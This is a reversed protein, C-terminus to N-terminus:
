SCKSYGCDLCVFCGEETAVFGGCNPCRPRSREEESPCDPVPAEKASPFVEHLYKQYEQLVRALADPCSTVEKGQALCVPCRIGKLQKTIVDHPIKSRLIVSVLRSIAETNARCVGGKGTALFTELPNGEGDVNLTVYLTGCAVDFETTFGRTTKPRPTPGLGRNRYTCNACDPGASSVGGRPGDASGKDASGGTTHAQASDGRYLVQQGKCGDRFVTVGKCGTKYALLYVDKIDEKTASSPLNITKSVGNSIYQQWCAQVMVHERPTVDFADVFYEPKPKGPHDKMWEEYLPDLVELYKEIGRDLYMRRHVLAFVPEIGSSTDCLLSCTGTPAITNWTCNRLGTKLIEEPTIGNQEMFRQLVGSYKLVAHDGEQFAPYPGEVLALAMSAQISADRLASGLTDILDLCEESGYRIGLKFLLHAFGMVGLGIPRYRRTERAIHEDPFWAADIVRNLAMVGLTALYKLMEFDIEGNKELVSLNIHGLNCSMNPYLPLEGCPNCATIYEERYRDRNINEFFLLGPDGCAWASEVIEEFLGRADVVGVPEKTVPDLLQFGEEREVAEMFERTVMVSINFFAFRDNGVKSTIFKLIDPHDVRLVGIQAARRRGGQLIANASANFLEMFSLPGSAVGVGSDLPRGEQSLLSFDYGVGGGVKSIIAARKLAEYIGAISNEVPIVFCASLNHHPNRLRYVAAYHEMTMEEPDRYLLDPPVGLGANFLCPSNFIFVRARLANYLRTEFEQIDELDYVGYLIMSSALFRSVRRCVDEWTEEGENLYRSTLIRRANESMPSSPFEPEPMDLVTMAMAKM